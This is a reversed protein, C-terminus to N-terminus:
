REVLVSMGPRLLPTDGGEARARVEFSRMDYGSSQRTSRWTAYDARPSIYYVRFALKKDGLAPVRGEFVTGIAVGPLEDERLNFTAWQDNLDILTVLPFGAPALEGPGLVLRDVQAALPALIHREAALSSVEAVGDSAQAALAAAATKEGQRAGIRAMEYQAQAARALETAALWNAKAEDFRQQAVLGEQYLADIRKYTQQAFVAGAEAREWNARAAAIEQPRAGEDVLSQKARAATRAAEAQALKADIEPLALELLLQGAAVQDGERVAQKAIRGAVKSSVDITRSEMQGQLPPLKPQSAMFLGWVVFAVAALILLAILALRAKRANPAHTKM